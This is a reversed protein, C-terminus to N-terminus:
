KTNSSQDSTMKSVVNTLEIFDTPSLQEPRKSFYPSVSENNM